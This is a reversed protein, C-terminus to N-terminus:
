YNWVKQRYYMSIVFTNVLDVLFFFFVQEDYIYKDDQQGILNKMNIEDDINKLM